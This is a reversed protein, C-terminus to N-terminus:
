KKNEEKIIQYDNISNDKDDEKNFNALDNIKFFLIKEFRQSIIAFFIFLGFKILSLLNILGSINYDPIKVIEYFIPNKFRKDYLSLNYYLYINCYSLPFALGAIAKITGILNLNDCINKGYLYNGSIFTRKNITYIIAISYPSNIITFLIIILFFYINTIFNSM